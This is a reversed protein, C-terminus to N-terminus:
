ESLTGVYYAADVGLSSLRGSGSIRAVQVTWRPVSRDIGDADSTWVAGNVACSYTGYWGPHGALDNWVGGSRILCRDGDRLVLGFPRPTAPAPAAPFNGNNTMRVLATGWPDRYCLATGPAPDKWCAVAYASSPSCALIDDDVAVPSSRATSPSGCDITVSTDSTISYGAAPLGSATVPRRVVRQTPAATAERSAAPTSDAPPPTTAPPAACGPVAAVAIGLAILVLSRMRGEM